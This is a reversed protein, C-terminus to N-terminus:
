CANERYCIKGNIITLVNKGKVELGDFPSFKAKSRFRKADIRWNRNMDVLAMDAFYGERIEGRREFGFIRAPQKASLRSVTELDLRKENVENALLALTTELGPFGSPAEEYPLAKEELLHPAHDSGIADVTGDCIAEYLAKNDRRSRLPPNVKGANGINKLISEDLLLHHPTIECYIKALKKFKKILEIEEATSVHTLYLAAGTDRALSLALQTGKVACERNRIMGHCVASKEFGAKSFRELEGSLESHVAIIKEYRAALTFIEVYLKKMDDPRGAASSFFVKIGAIKANLGGDRLIAETNSINKWDVGTLFKYNLPSVRSENIKMEIVARCDTPPLTNPMDIISSVGGSAAARSCSTWDEKYSMDLGRVHVHPDILGAIVTLGRADIVEAAEFDATNKKRDEECGSAPIIKEIIGGDILIDSLKGKLLCNKILLEV